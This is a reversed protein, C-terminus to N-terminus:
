PTAAPCTCRQMVRERAAKLRLRAEECPGQDGPDLECLRAAAREMAGLARCALQCDGVAAELAQNAQLLDVLARQRTAASDEPNVSAPTPAPPYGHGAPYAPAPTTSHDPTQPTPASGGCAAAGSLVLVVAAMRRARKM